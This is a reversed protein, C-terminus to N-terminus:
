RLAITLPEPPASTAAVTQADLEFEIMESPRVHRLRRRHLVGDGRSVELTGHDRVMLSRLYFQNDRGPAYAHPVVYRVNAGAVVRGQPATRKGGGRTVYDVVHRGCRMAEDSAFDVLDHVHLVNGCAFVGDLNTMLDANVYAGGTDHCLEVGANRSLENEPVLGVSLLVTDCELRFANDADPRGDTLPTVEVAEVRDRGDIRSVVHSLHLPIDFDHLCQVVNRILGSPFPLIEVVGLVETGVWSLRRAMILGIDGSGVIVAKEGPIYGDINLLRQALGATFIGSPRTGPIGLNGRNRERCGMALVVAKARLVLVGNAASYTVVATTGNQRLLDMATTGLYTTVGARSVDEIDREAYEPGTLEEDFRHLGFGNHICQYLIGGLHEEREVIAVSLGGAAMTAAAAMGAAGGGIVVADYDQERM